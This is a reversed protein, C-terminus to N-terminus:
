SWKTGFVREEETKGAVGDLASRKVRSAVM